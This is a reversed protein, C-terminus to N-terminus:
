MDQKKLRSMIFPTNRGVRMGFRLEREQMRHKAELPLSQMQKLDYPMHKNAM